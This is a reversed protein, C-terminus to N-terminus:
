LLLRATIGGIVVSFVLLIWYPVTGDVALCLLKVGDRIDDPSACNMNSRFNDIEPTLFNIFMLGIILVVISSLIALGLTQGKNNM